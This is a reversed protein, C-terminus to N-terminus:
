ISYLELTMKQYEHLQQVLYYLIQTNAIDYYYIAISCLLDLPTPERSLTHVYTTMTLRTLLREGRLVIWRTVRRHGSGIWECEVQIRIEEVSCLTSPRDHVNLVFKAVRTSSIRLTRWSIHKCHENEM